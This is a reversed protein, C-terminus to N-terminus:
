GQAAAIRNREARCEAETPKRKLAKAYRGTAIAALVWSRWRTQTIGGSEVHYEDCAKQEAATNMDKPCESLDFDSLSDAERERYSDSDSDSDSLPLARSTAPHTPVARSVSKHAARETRKREADSGSETRETDYAAKRAKERYMGHNVVRWGWDRHDDLLVLRAGSFEDSRSGPDPECFRRMCATVDALPLGTVGAIYAQTCDVVGHRDTMSLVIPWLGIDPWKGCLTGTTLTSFLPTYGAM